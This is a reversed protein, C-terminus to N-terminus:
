DPRSHGEVLSTKAIIVGSKNLPNALVELPYARLIDLGATRMVPLLTRQQDGFLAYLKQARNAYEWVPEVCIVLNRSVRDMSRVCALTDYPLQELCHISFVVDFADDPLTDLSIASDVQIDIGALRAGWYQHGQAIRQASIEIGSFVIETPFAAKLLMLNTGNGSGVELVRLPGIHDQALLGKIQDVIPALSAARIVRFSVREMRGHNFTYTSGAEFARMEWDDYTQYEDHSLSTHRRIEKDRRLKGLTSFLLEWTKFWYFLKPSRITFPRAPPTIYKAAKDRVQAM